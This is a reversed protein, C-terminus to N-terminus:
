DQVVYWAQKDNATPVIIWRPLSKKNVRDAHYAVTYESNDNANLEQTRFVFGNTHHFEVRLRRAPPAQGGAAEVLYHQEIAKLTNWEDREEILTYPYVEGVPRGQSAIARARHDFHELAADADGRSDFCALGEALYGVPLDAKE